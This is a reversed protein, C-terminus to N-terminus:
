RCVKVRANAAATVNELVDPTGEDVIVPHNKILVKVPFTTCAPSKSVGKIMGSPPWYM